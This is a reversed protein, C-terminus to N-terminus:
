NECDFIMGLTLWRGDWKEELPKQSDLGLNIDFVWVDYLICVIDFNLRKCWFNM